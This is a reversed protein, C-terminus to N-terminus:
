SNQNNICEPVNCSTLKIENEMPYINWAKQEKDAAKLSKMEDDTDQQYTDSLTEKTPTNNTEPLICSAVAFTIGM